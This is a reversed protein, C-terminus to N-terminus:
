KALSRLAIIINEMSHLAKLIDYKVGLAVYDRIFPVGEKMADWEAGLQARVSAPIELTYIPGSQGGFGSVVDGKMDVNTVRSKKENLNQIDRLLESGIPAANFVIAPKDFCLAAYTALGGGLSHGTMVINYNTAASQKIIEGVYILAEQYQATKVGKLTGRALLWRLVQAERQLTNVDGREDRPM